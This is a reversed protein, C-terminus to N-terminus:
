SSAPRFPREIITVNGSPGLSALRRRRDDSVEGGSTIIAIPLESWRPQRALLDVLLPVTDANLAEEALLLAGCGADAQACLAGVSACVVAELGADKLFRAAIKADHEFPAVILVSEGALPRSPPTTRKDKEVRRDGKRSM